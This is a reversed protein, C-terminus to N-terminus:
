LDLSRNLLFVRPPFSKTEQMKNQTAMIYNSDHKELQERLSPPFVDRLIELWYHFTDKAETKWIGFHLGLVEFPPM